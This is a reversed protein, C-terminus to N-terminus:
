WLGKLEDKNEAPEPETGAYTFTVQAPKDDAVTVDATKLGYRSHWAELKYKGAPVDTFVFKGRADVSARAVLDSLCHLHAKTHPASNDVVKWSGESACTFLRKQGPATSLPPVAKNGEATLM